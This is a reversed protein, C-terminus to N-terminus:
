VDHGGDAGGQDIVDEVDVACCRLRETDFRLYYAQTTDSSGHGLVDSVVSIPTGNGIMAVALSGRLSHMGCVKEPPFEIGARAAHRSLRTAVSAASGFTDFPHRHKVFVKPCATEPRGHQVYDIVAWGVDDLLPLSLPRGTKRQIITITKARWDLDGLELHRLDSIRLGLRATALIMAYDRKGIASQRDIGALLRRVQVASWLHPESEHRVYKQPPLLGALSGLMRGSVALFDLFDALSSRLSAITKRRLGHQRLLFGSLDRVGLVALDTAGVDELYALFRSVARDKAVVTAAVNGRRRCAILYDDRLLRFMRPCGDKASVVPRDVEVPRGALVDAVLVVPRRVAQVARDRVPERLSGLRVGTQKAIFDVCVQDSVSDVGRGGVFLAFRDLVVQHRRVTAEARGAELLVAAVRGVASRVDAEGM